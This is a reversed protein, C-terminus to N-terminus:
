NSFLPKATTVTTGGQLLKHMLKGAIRPDPDMSLGTLTRGVLSEVAVGSEKLLAQNVRVIHGTADLQVMAMPALEFLDSVNFAEEVAQSRVREDARRLTIVYGTQLGTNDTIPSIALDVSVAPHGPQNLSVGFEEIPSSLGHRAPIHVPRNRADRLDLVERLHRGTAYERSCGILREASTNIFQIDCDLSVTLLAEHMGDVTSAMRGHARRLGADVKAKHLAVQVTAKLERTQFPKTLYGYPMERVARNITADDSYATLFVSPVQYADRLLRATQIGDLSGVIHLDMLALDPSFEEASVLAEDAGQALAVVECGFKELEQQLDLAVIPEDEVILVKGTMQDGQQESM